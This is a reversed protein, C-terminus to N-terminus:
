QYEVIAAIAAAIEDMVTPSVRAMRHLFRKVDVGRMQLVDVASPKRLGNLSDPELKVMWYCNAFQEQWGIVPAVLEILLRGAADSSVVVAPRQKSTEHGITPTFDVQRIEGRRAFLSDTNPM